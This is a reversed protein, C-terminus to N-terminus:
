SELYKKLAYKQWDIDNPYKEFCIKMINEVDYKKDKCETFMTIENLWAEFVKRKEEKTAKWSQKIRPEKISSLKEEMTYYIGDKDIEFYSEAFRIVSQIVGDKGKNFHETSANEKGWKLYIEFPEKKEKFDNKKFVALFNKVMEKNKENEMLEEIARQEGNEEYRNSSVLISYKMIVQKRSEVVQYNVSKKEYKKMESDILMELNEIIFYRILNKIGQKGKGINYRYWMKKLCIKNDVTLNLGTQKFLERQIAVDGSEIMKLLRADKKDHKPMEIEEIKKVWEKKELIRKKLVMKEENKLHHQNELIAEAYNEEYFELYAKKIGEETNITKTRLLFLDFKKYDLYEDRDVKLGFVTKKFIKKETSNMKMRDIAAFQLTGQVNLEGIKEKLRLYNEYKRKNSEKRRTKIGKKIEKEYTKIEEENLDNEVYKEFLYARISKGLNSKSKSVKNKEAWLLFDKVNEEKINKTLENVKQELVKIEELRMTRMSAISAMEETSEYKPKRVGSGIREILRQAYYNEFYTASGNRCAADAIANERRPIWKITSKRNKLLQQINFDNTRVNRDCDTKVEINEIGKEKMDMLLRSVSHAEAKTSSNINTQYVRGDVVEGKENEYWYSHYAVDKKVSADTYAAVIPSEVKTKQITNM